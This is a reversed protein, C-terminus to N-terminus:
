HSSRAVSERLYPVLDEWTRDTVYTHELSFSCDVTDKLSAPGPFGIVDWGIRDHNGGYVPDGYFGQRTHLVLLDFFPLRHDSVSQLITATSEARGPELPEPRPKGSLAVLVVDQQAESLEVFLKEFGSRALADLEEIGAAYTRRLSEVRETWSRAPHGDLELFGSGDASAYIYAIGSLYRDIYRVVQAERAGPQHDAPIIRATADEITRWQHEDFFLREPADVAVRPQVVRWHARCVM